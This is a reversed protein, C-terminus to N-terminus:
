GPPSLGIGSFALGNRFSGLKRVGSSWTMSWRIRLLMRDMITSDRAVVPEHLDYKNKTDCICKFLMSTLDVETGSMM